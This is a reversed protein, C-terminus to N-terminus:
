GRVVLAVVAGAVAVLIIGVIGYVISRVPAFEARTVFRVEFESSIQDIQDELEGIKACTETVKEVLSVIREELRALALAVDPKECKDASKQM